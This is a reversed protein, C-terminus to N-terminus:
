LPPGRIGSFGSSLARSSDEARLPGGYLRWLHLNLAPLNQYLSDSAPQVLLDQRLPLQLPPEVSRQLLATTWTRRWQLPAVLAVLCPESELKRLFAPILPTPPFAYLDKGTWTLMLGDVGLAQNDPFPSVFVPLRATHRTAFLDIQLEPYRQLIQQFVEAHLTWETSLPQRRSLSDAIVNLRGPIHRVSLQLDNAHCMRLLRVATQCLIRSHLGGQNRLYACVTTNDTMVLVHCGRLDQLWATLAKEVALMELVNIHLSQEQLTWQGHLARFEPLLHAGWGLLSADTCLTISPAPSQLVVGQVLWDANLWPTIATRVEESIPVPTDWGFPAPWQLDLLAWQLARLTARGMPILEAAAQAMGVFSQLVRPTTAQLHLLDSGLDLIKQRRKNTLCVRNLQTRFFMGLHVFEQSPTLDSKEYNIKWGLSVLVSILQHSHVALVHADLNKQLIDDLYSSVDTWYTRRVYTMVSEMIRTFVWPSLNLGFPMATFAYVVDDIAFRLYRRSSDAIPVHLYADSLDLSIAFENAKVSSRVSRATEMRFHPATVYGNLTSLDIVPRWRGGPKPVVFLHSYFGPSATDRVVEIAQKELLAVVEQRLAAAKEPSHPVAIWKPRRVLPPPSTFSLQLGREVVELLWPDDPFLEM